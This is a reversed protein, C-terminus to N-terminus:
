ADTPAIRFDCDCLLFVDRHVLGGGDSSATRHLKVTQYEVRVIRLPFLDLKTCSIRRLFEEGSKRKNKGIQM